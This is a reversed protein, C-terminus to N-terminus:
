DVSTYECPIGAAKCQDFLEWMHDPAGHLIDSYPKGPTAAYHLHLSYSPVPCDSRILLADLVDTYEVGNLTISWSQGFM